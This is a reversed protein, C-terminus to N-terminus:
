GGMGLFGVKLFRGNCIPCGTLRKRGLIVTLGEGLTKKGVTRTTSCNKYVEFM